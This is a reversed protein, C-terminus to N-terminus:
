GGLKLEVVKAVGLVSKAEFNIAKMRSSDKELHLGLRKAEDGSIFNHTAGTDVMAMTSRGNLQIDVYMLEKTTKSAPQVDLAHAKIANLIRIAGMKPEEEQDSEDVKLFNQAKKKPCEAVRKKPCETARHDRRKDDFNGKKEGQKPGKQKDGGGKGQNPKSTKGKTSGEAKKTFEVLKKATALATQKLKKLNKWALYEVNEPFFQAKIECKFDEWTKVSCLCQTVDSYRRRWWLM